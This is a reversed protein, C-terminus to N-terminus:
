SNYDWEVKMVSWEEDEYGMKVKCGECENITMYSFDVNLHEKRQITEEESRRTIKISTWDWGSPFSKYNEYGNKELFSEAENESTLKDHKDAIVAVILDKDNYTERVWKEYEDIPFDEFSSVDITVLRCSSKHGKYKIFEKTVCQLLDSTYETLDDEEVSSSQQENAPIWEQSNIGCGCLLFQAVILVALSM